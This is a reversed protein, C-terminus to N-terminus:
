VDDSKESRSCQLEPSCNQILVLLIIKYNMAMCIKRCYLHLCASFLHSNSCIIEVEQYSWIEDFSLVLEAVWPHNQLPFSAHPVRTVEEGGKGRRGWGGRPSLFCWICLNVTHKACTDVKVCHVDRYSDSSWTRCVCLELVQLEWSVTWHQCHRM